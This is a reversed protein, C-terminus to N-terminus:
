KEGVEVLDDVRAHTAPGSTRNALCLSRSGSQRLRPTSTRIADDSGAVRAASCAVVVIGITM